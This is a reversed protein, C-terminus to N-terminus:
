IIIPLDIQTKQAEGPLGEGPFVLCITHYLLSVSEAGGGGGRFEVSCVNAEQFMWVCDSSLVTVVRRHSRDQPSLPLECIWIM